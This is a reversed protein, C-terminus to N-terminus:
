SSISRPLYSPFADISRLGAASLVVDMAPGGGVHTYGELKLWNLVNYLIISVSVGSPFEEIEHRIGRLEQEIVIVKVGVREAVAAETFDIAVPFNDLLIEFVAKTVVSTEIEYKSM